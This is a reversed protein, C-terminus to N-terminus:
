KKLIKVSVKIPVGEFGYAERLQNEIYRIYSFHLSEGKALTATFEPPNSSTQNFSVIRPREHGGGKVPKKFAVMKKLLNNLGTQDITITRQQWVHVVQDLITGVNKTTLASTFLIPAFKMWPFMRQYYSRVENDTMNTKEKLLDWKNAIIIVGAQQEKLLGALHLDQTALPKDVETVFLVVDSHKIAEVAKRTSVKELGRKIMSKRRVGATDVLTIPFGKHEFNTDQPERTTHAIPSVIVREEGLIANILSSKGVNPKGLVTVRIPRIPADFTVEEVLLAEDKAAEAEEKTQRPPEPLDEVMMDLFDGVGSGNGASVPIPDGLGLAYFDAISKRVRENDVKNVVLSVKKNKLKKIALALEKDEPMVGSKGDVVFIIETAKELARKTQQLIAEDIYASETDETRKVAFTPDVISRISNQLVDINVGGTDILQFQKGRWEVPALNYDRTTGPISSVLAKTTETLRNFLASKGVNIRGLLVVIPQTTSTNM